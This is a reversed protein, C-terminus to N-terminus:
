KNNYKEKFFYHTICGILYFVFFIDHGALHYQGFIVIKSFLYVSAMIVIFNIIKTPM